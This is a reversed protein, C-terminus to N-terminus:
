QENRNSRLRAFTAAHLQSAAQRLAGMIEKLSASSLSSPLLRREYKSRVDHADGFWYRAHEIPPIQTVVAAMFDAPNSRGPHGAGLVRVAHEATQRRTGWKVVFLIKDALRALLAADARGAAPPGDVLVLEYSARFSAFAAQLKESSILSLPDVLGPRMPLYDFALAPHRQVVAEPATDKLILDAIDRDATLKLERLLGPTRADLDVVLVRRGIGAAYRAISLALTTKGEGAESGSLLVVEPARSPAVLDLAAAISRISEAYPTFPREAVYNHPESLGSRDFKPVLGICPLSLAGAVDNSSHLGQDLQERAVAWFCSGFLLLVVGPVVFLIPHLSSPAVPPSALSVIWVSSGLVELRRRTEMQRRLLDALLQADARSEKELDALQEKKEDSAPGPSASMAQLHKQLRARSADGARHLEAIRQGLQDLEAQLSAEERKRLLGRYLMVIRNAVDAAQDPSKSSYRISIVSSSLSQSVNVQKQFSELQVELARGNPAAQGVRLPPVGTTDAAPDATAPGTTSVLVERLFDRSKLLVLHTDVIMQNARPSLSTPASPSVVDIQAIATYVPSMMAAAVALLLTGCVLVTAIMGRRRVLITLLRRIDTAADGEAEPPGPQLAAAQAFAPGSARGRFKQGGSEVIEVIEVRRQGVNPAVM